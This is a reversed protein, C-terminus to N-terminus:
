NQQLTEQVKQESETAEMYEDDKAVEVVTKGRAHGQELKQFAQPVQSFPFQAEVVPLIKGADVLRSVEDLTPGDPAYFAWRYFVGSSTINQFAKNHLTLGTHLSGDLLGMSDTNLILPSVLTVFKAGSWPKLLRMAWEETDGGVNDLIVDFREMMDLQDAVDGATYDVVEDAGLGRVLGEANQSCTVTVHAGWAKLLQISFTGVGGSAGTILVRKNLSNERCLGGANVLASLATNAVYPISAAEIHSLSKPKYSVEYETLTVYEALSGQKWPPIAAWVEDGPAFHTVGSGCDVVVGSLDRGLILPFESFSNVVSLPDRRLNLLTAGYGGRMNLDLPNLSAARVNIMVDHAFNVTPIPIEETHRLVGSSGYQDIVWASMSQLRSPSSCVNRWGTRALTKSWGAARGNFLCLLRVSAM